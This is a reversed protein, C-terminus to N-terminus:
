EFLADISDLWKQRKNAKRSYFNNLSQQLHDIDFLDKLESEPFQNGINGYPPKKSYCYGYIKGCLYALQVQNRTETVGIWKFSGEFYKKMYGKDIAKGFVRRAKPTDLIGPLVGIPLDTPLPPPTDSGPEQGTEVTQGAAPTPTGQPMTQSAEVQPTTQTPPTIHSLIRKNYWSLVENTVPMEFKLVGCLKTVIEEYRGIKTEALDAKLGIEVKAEEQLIEHILWSIEQGASEKIYDSKTVFALLYVAWNHIQESDTEADGIHAKIDEHLEYINRYNRM